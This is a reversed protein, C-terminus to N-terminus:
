KDDCCSDKCGRRTPFFDETPFQIKRFVDCPQDTACDCQKEPICYDYVPVLVQVNRVLQVITFIGITVFVAPDGDTVIPGGLYDLVCAPIIGVNDYGCKDKGIRSSLPVPSAAQVVCKPMSASRADCVTACNDANKESTFTKITGEGGYLVVRKSFFAIGKVETPCGHPSTYVDVGILFFFTIDCSYFGRSLNVPEVDVLSYVIEASKIKVSCANNVVSQGDNSFYVRLEELCDRDCCSDFVRGVDICVAEKFNENAECGLNADAM